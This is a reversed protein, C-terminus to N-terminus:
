DGDRYVVEHGAWLWKGCTTVSLHKSESPSNLVFCIHPQPKTLYATDALALRAAFCANMRLQLLVAPSLHTKKKAQQFLIGWREGKPADSIGTLYARGEVVM